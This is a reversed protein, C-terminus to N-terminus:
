MVVLHALAGLVAVGLAALIGAVVDDLMVGVPGHRRDAWGVPGPKRIDFLRFLVFAAIWGPWLALIPAGAHAAGVAVPLLAIWQGVVEDVVIESPDPDAAGRTMEATAWLGALFVAPIALLVLWLGGLTWLAWFLPLAAASGWTGPAPRLRGAGAVTGIFAALGSM